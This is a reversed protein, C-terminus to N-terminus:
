EISLNYELLPEDQDFAVAFIKQRKEDIVFESIQADLELIKILNGSWDFLYILNSIYFYTFLTALTPM